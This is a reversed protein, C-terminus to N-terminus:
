AKAFAGALFLVIITALLPHALLAPITVGALIVAAAALIVAALVLDSGLCLIASM